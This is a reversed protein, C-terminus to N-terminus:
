FQDKPKNLLDYSYKIIKEYREKLILKYFRKRIESIQEIGDIFINIDELNINNYFKILAKNCDKNKLSSIYDYYNIKKDDIKLASNPFVYIRKNIEEENNIIDNLQEDALQPYLCSGCDYIPAFIINNKQENVLLGYNGSHRDFNGIFTDIIFMYWFKEKIIQRNKLDPHKDITEIIEELDNNVKSNSTSNEVYSNQFNSFEVLKYDDTNFDLCAVVDKVTGNEYKYTGLITEQAQLNLMNFIHCGIYESFVSNSYSIEKNDKANNPFKLIYNKNNYNISLKRDAGSYYKYNKPCNTFDIM